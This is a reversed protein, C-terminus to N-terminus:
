SSGRRKRVHTKHASPSEQGQGHGCSSTSWTLWCYKPTGAQQREWSTSSLTALATASARGTLQIRVTCWTGARM